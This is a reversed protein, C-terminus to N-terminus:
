QEDFDVVVREWNGSEELKKEEASLSIFVGTAKEKKTLGSIPKVYYHIGPAEECRQLRTLIFSGIVLLIQGKPLPGYFGFDDALDSDWFGHSWGGELDDEKRGADYAKQLHEDVNFHVGEDNKIFPSIMSGDHWFLVRHRDCCHKANSRNSKFIVGCYHCVSTYNESLTKM